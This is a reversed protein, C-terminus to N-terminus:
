IPRNSDPHNSCTKENSTRRTAQTFTRKLTPKPAFNIGWVAAICAPRQNVTIAVRLSVALMAQKHEMRDAPLIGTAKMAYRVPTSMNTKCSAMDSGTRHFVLNSMRRVLKRMLYYFHGQAQRWTKDLWRLQSTLRNGVIEKADHLINRQRESRIPIM